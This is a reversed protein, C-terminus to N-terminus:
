TSAFKLPLKTSANTVKNGSSFKSSLLNRVSRLIFEVDREEEVKNREM